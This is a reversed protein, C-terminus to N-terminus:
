FLLSFRLTQHSRRVELLACDTRMLLSGDTSQNQPDWPAPLVSEPFAPGFVQQVRSRARLRTRLDTSMAQPLPVTIPRIAWTWSRYPPGKLAQGRHLGTRHAGALIPA